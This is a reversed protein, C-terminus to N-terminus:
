YYFSQPPTNNPPPRDKKLPFPTDKAVPQHDSAERTRCHQQFANFGSVRRTQPAGQRVHGRHISRARNPFSQGPMDSQPRSPSSAALLSQRSTASTRWSSRQTGQRPWFRGCKKRKPVLGGGPASTDLLRARRFVRGVKLQAGAFCEQEVADLTRNHDLFASMIYSDRQLPTSRKASSRKADADLQLNASAPLQALCDVLCSRVLQYREKRLDQTVSPAYLYEWFVECPFRIELCCLVAEARLLWKCRLWERSSPTKAANAIGPRSANEGFSSWVRRRM